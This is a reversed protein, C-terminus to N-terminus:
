GPAALADLRSFLTRVEPEHLYLLLGEVLFIAPAHRDFGGAELAATFDDRLDIALARRDCTPAVGALKEEKYALVSPQDLEFLRTGPPWPLRYARADMGAAFLVCQLPGRELAAAIRDDLFRTRIELSPPHGGRALNAKRRAEEIVFGEDGALRRAFPDHFLADPRESELARSAAVWLSTAAVGHM